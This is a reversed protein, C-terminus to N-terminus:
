IRAIDTELLSKWLMSFRYILRALVGATIFLQLRLTHEWGFSPNLKIIVKMVRDLDGRSGIISLFYGVYGM